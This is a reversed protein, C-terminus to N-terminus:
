RGEELRNGARDRDDHVLGCPDFGCALTQYGNAIRRTQPPPLSRLLIRSCFKTSGWRGYRLPSAKASKRRVASIFSQRAKFSQLAKASLVPSGCSMRTNNRAVASVC